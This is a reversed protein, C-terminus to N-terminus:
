TAAPVADPLEPVVNRAGAVGPRAQSGDGLPLLRPRDAGRQNVGTSRVYVIGTQGDSNEKLGIV